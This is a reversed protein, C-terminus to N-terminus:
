HTMRASAKNAETHYITTDLCNPLANEFIRSINANIFRPKFSSILEEVATSNFTRWQPPPRQLLPSSLANDLRSRSRQHAHLCRQMSCSTNVRLWEIWAIETHESFASIFLHQV